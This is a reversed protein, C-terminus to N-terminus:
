GSVELAIVTRGSSTTGATRTGIIFQFGRAATPDPRIIAPWTHFPSPNELGVWEGPTLMWIVKQKAQAPNVATSEPRKIDTWLSMGPMVSGQQEWSTRTAGNRYAVLKSCIAVRPLGNGDVLVRRSESLPTPPKETHPPLARQLLEEKGRLWKTSKDRPVLWKLVEGCVVSNCTRLSRAVYWDPHKTWYKVYPDEGFPRGCGECEVPISRNEVHFTLRNVGTTPPERPLRRTDSMLDHDYRMHRYRVREYTEKSTTPM